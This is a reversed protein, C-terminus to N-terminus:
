VGGGSGSYCGSYKEISAEAMGAKCGWMNHGSANPLKSGTKQDTTDGSQGWSSKATALEKFLLLGVEGYINKVAGTHEPGLVPQDAPPVNMYLVIDPYEM